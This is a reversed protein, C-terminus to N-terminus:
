LIARDQHLYKSEPPDQAEQFCRLLKQSMICTMFGQCTEPGRDLEPGRSDSFGRIGFVNSDCAAAIQKRFYCLWLDIVPASLILTDTSLLINVVGFSFYLGEYIQRPFQFQLGSNPLTKKYIHGCDTGEEDSKLPMYTLWQTHTHTAALPLQTANQNGKGLEIFAPLGNTLQWNTLRQGWELGVYFGSSM